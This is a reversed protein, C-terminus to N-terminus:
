LFFPFFPSKLEKKFFCELIFLSLLHEILLGKFPGSISATQTKWALGSPRPETCSASVPEIYKHKKTVQNSSGARSLQSPQFHLCKFLLDTPQLSGKTLIVSVTYALLVQPWTGLVWSFLQTHDILKYDQLQSFTSLHPPPQPVGQDARWTVPSSWVSSLPITDWFIFGFGFLIAWCSFTSAARTSSRPETGLMWM